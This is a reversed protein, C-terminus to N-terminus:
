GPRTSPWAPPPRRASPTPCPRTSPMPWSPSFTSRRARSPRRTSRRSARRAVRRPVPAARPRGQPQPGPRAPPRARRPAQPGARAEPREQDPQGARVGGALEGGAVEDDRRLDDRRARRRRAQRLPALRRRGGRRHDGPDRVTPHHVRGDAARGAPPGAPPGDHTAQTRAPSSEAPTPDMAPANEPPESPSKAPLNGRVVLTDRPGPGALGAPNSRCGENRWEAPSRPHAPPVFHETSFRGPLWGPTAPTRKRVGTRLGQFVPTRLRVGAVGLARSPSKLLASQAEDRGGKRNQESASIAAVDGPVVVADPRAAPHRGVLPHRRTSRCRSSIPGRAPPRPRAGPPSPAPRLGGPRTATPTPPRATQSRRSAHAQAEPPAERPMRELSKAAVARVDAGSTSSGPRRWPSTRGRTASRPWPGPPPWASKRTSTTSSSARDAAARRPRRRVQRPHDGGRPPTHGHISSLKGISEAVPDVVTTPQGPTPQAPADRAPGLRRQGRRHEAPVPRAPQLGDDAATRRGRDAEAM